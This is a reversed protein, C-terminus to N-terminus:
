TPEFTGNDRATLMERFAVAARKAGEEPVERVGFNHHLGGWEEAKLEITRWFAVARRYSKTVLSWNGHGETNTCECVYFVHGSKPAREEVDSLNNSLM